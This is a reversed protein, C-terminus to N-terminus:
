QKGKEVQKQRVYFADKEITILTSSTSPKASNEMICPITPQCMCMIIYRNDCLAIHMCLCLIILHVYWNVPVINSYPLGGLARHVSGSPPPVPNKLQGLTGLLVM